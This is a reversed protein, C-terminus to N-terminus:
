QISITGTPNLQSFITGIIQFIVRLSKKEIKLKEFRYKNCHNKGSKRNILKLM